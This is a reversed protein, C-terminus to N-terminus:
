SVLVETPGMAAPQQEYSTNAPCIMLAVAPKLQQETTALATKTLVTSVSLPYFFHLVVETM